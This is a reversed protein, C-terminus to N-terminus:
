KIITSSEYKAIIEALKNMDLNKIPTKNDVSLEKSVKDIYSSTNNEHPPAYIHMLETLTSNGSLGTSTRGQQKAVLDNVLAQYGAKASKFMAWYGSGRSDGKTAGKQGVYMLNGPNNHRYAISDQKGIEVVFGSPDKLVYNKKPEPTNTYKSLFFAAADFKNDNTSTDKTTPIDQPSTYDPVQFYQAFYTNDPVEVRNEEYYQSVRDQLDNIIPTFEALQQMENQKTEAYIYSNNINFFVSLFFFLLFVAILGYEGQYLNNIVEM